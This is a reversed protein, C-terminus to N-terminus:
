EDGAEEEALQFWYFGRPALTLLYPWEGIAPFRAEVLALVLQPMEERLTFAELINLQSVEQAKSGFWRQEVVWNRLREEELTALLESM